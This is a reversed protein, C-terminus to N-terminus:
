IGSVVFHGYDEIACGHSRRVGDRKSCKQLLQAQRLLTQRDLTIALDHGFGQIALGPQKLAVPDLNDLEDAATSSGLPSVPVFPLRLRSGPPDRRLAAFASRIRM